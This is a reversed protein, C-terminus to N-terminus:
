RREAQMRNFEAVAAAVGTEQTKEALGALTSAPEVAAVSFPLPTMEARVEAELEKGYDRQHKAYLPVLTKTWAFMNGSAQNQAAAVIRALEAKSVFQAPDIQQQGGGEAAPAAKALEGQYWETVKQRETQFRVGEAEAAAKAQAAAEREKQAEQALRTHDSQRLVGDGLRDLVPEAELAAQVAGRQAEPIMSLVESLFEKAAEKRDQKAKAM